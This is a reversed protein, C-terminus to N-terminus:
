TFSRIIIPTIDKYITVKYRVGTQDAYSRRDEIITGEDTASLPYIANFFM